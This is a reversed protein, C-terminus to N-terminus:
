VTKWDMMAQLRNTYAHLQNQSDQLNEIERTLNRIHEAHKSLEPSYKVINTLIEELLNQIWNHASERHSIKISEYGKEISERINANFTKTMKENDLHDSEWITFGGIRLRQEFDDKSFIQEATSDTFQLQEYTIIIKELEQRKEDTLVESGSVEKALLSRIEETSDTWYQKSYSDLTKHSDALKEEYVDKVYRLLDDAAAKNAEKRVLFQNKRKERIESIDDLLGKGTAKIASFSLTNDKFIQGVGARLNDAAAGMADKFEQEREAYGKEKEQEEIFRANQEDLETRTFLAGAQKVYESMHLDYENDYLTKKDEAKEELRKVLDAKDTELREEIDRRIGEKDSTRKEIEAETISIVKGLFLQSQFCKNYASYKGAFSEIETEVSMLGSNAYVLDASKSAIEDARKKIQDPMINLLYLSKYFKNNPDSYREKQAYYIDAYVEDTFEGNLKAGLGLISSVYFLGGSYLNRPVAQSLIKNKIEEPSGKRQKGAVDAKNVVIMTFRSDLEEFTRIIRYLTENDTSDLSDPTSLFVPLGNTMNAMAGKLVQLHRANSASNSGPTDFLVFPHQTKALVGEAFPVEVEILDSILVEETEEEFGNIISLALNVRSSMSEDPSEAQMKRLKKVLESNEDGAEILSDHYTILIRLEGGQYGCKIRARDPYKSRSIKYVKATVPEEGSPLIESGILANIFTSKGASYNGLVCVPVVDSSADEFRQLDNQIEKQDVSQIILPSMERFLEKVSPLIDRANELKQETRVPHIRVGGQIQACAEKLEEFEDATGEFYVTVDEGAVSYEEIILDCIKKVKFPFFGGTIDDTLLKSNPNNLVNIEKWEGDVGQRKFLVMKKYPNSIIKIATM